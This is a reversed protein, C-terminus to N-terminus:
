LICGGRPLDIFGVGTGYFSPSDKSHQFNIIRWTKGEVDVSGIMSQRTIVYLVGDIFVSKLDLDLSIEMSWGSQKHSWAGTASSYIKVALVRGDGADYENVDEDWQFEFVYFRPAVAPNFGLRVMQLKSSWRRTVPVTVWKETAPNLVIYDFEDEDPFRYCRFLLLGNCCDELVLGERERDPLFWFSLDTFSPGTGPVNCFDYGHSTLAPSDRPVPYFFGALTQPLRGHNKPDSILASWRTSVCRFRCLSRYPVRALIELLLDDTLQAAPNPETRVMKTASSGGAM